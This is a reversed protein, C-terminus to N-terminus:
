CPGHSARAAVATLTPVTSAAVDAESLRDAALQQEAETIAMSLTKHAHRAKSLVHEAAAVTADADTLEPDNLQSRRFRSRDRVASPKKKFSARAPNLGGWYPVMLWPSTPCTSDWYLYQVFIYPEGDVDIFHRRLTGLLGSRRLM